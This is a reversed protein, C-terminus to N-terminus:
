RLHQPVRDEFISRQRQIRACQSRLGPPPVLVLYLLVTKDGDKQETVQAVLERERTRTGEITWISSLLGGRATQLTGNILQLTLPQDPLQTSRLAPEPCQLRKVDQRAPDVGGTRETPAKSKSFIHDLRLHGHPALQKRLLVQPDQM